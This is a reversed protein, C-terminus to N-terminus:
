GFLSAAHVVSVLQETVVAGYGDECRMLLIVDIGVLSSM